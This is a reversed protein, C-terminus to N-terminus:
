YSSFLIRLRVETHLFIMVICDLGTPLSGFLLVACSWWLGSLVHFWTLLCCPISRPHRTHLLELLPFIWDRSRQCSLMTESTVLFAISDMRQTWGQKPSDYVHLDLGSPGGFTQLMQRCCAFIGCEARAIYSTLSLHSGMFGILYHGLSFGHNLSLLRSLQWAFRLVDLDIKTKWLGWAQSRTRRLSCEKCGYLVDVNFPSFGECLLM